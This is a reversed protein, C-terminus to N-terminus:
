GELTFRFRWNGSAWQPYNTGWANNYLSVHIGKAPDPQERSFNLPSRSGLMLVPADLTTLQFAGHGDRYAAGAQVAHQTRSGGALVGLAGVREGAKDLTWGAPDPAFPQFSLWLAEPMRNAPKELMTLTLDMRPRAAPLALELFMRAPWATNPTREEEPFALTLLLRLDEGDRRMLVSGLRPYWVKEAGFQEMGPKGFDRPAWDATSKVYRARYDAYEAQSLSQYAALALPHEPSAWERGTSKSQFRLLAGTAPHLAFRYHLAAFARLDTLAFGELEPANVALRALGAEAKAKLVPTLNAAADRLNDRKEAWSHQMTQYGPQNLVQALDAPRYHANDLYSKTDTGWTHEAGLLFRRLFQLDVPDGPILRGEAVWRERLRALERFRAIKGPDSAAGYIWTDGIEGTVVPLQARIPAVALAADNLTAAEVSAGPFESRLRAYIGAIEASTHPGSNDNRVEVAVATGTGPIALTGGYDHRHYLVPLSAGSTSRWLFLDPVDPPTSAANVGIDLLQMGHAALPAVLGRTHGPVDTMKAGVTRRGYRRDLAASFGLGGAILSPTLLETQWSFPLAHWAIAGDAVAQDMTRRQAPTAQELYEWLLWSGTTWTYRDPGAVSLQAATAIAQPYYVDFYRRLVLAQTQTFGVDLHCKAILLVRTIPPQAPLAAAAAALASRQLFARRHM